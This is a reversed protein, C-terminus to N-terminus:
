AALSRVVQKFLYDKAKQEPPLEDFPVLCPHTKKETDKVDGYVWGDAEKDASWADHQASPPADPNEIAFQVGKVASERQWEEADDWPKQSDDGFALCLAANVEHAVKAIQENNM